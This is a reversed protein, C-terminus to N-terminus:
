RLSRDILIALEKQVREDASQRLTLYLSCQDVINESALIFPDYTWAEMRAEADDRSPCGVIDGTELADLVAKGHMAYTPIPEDALMTYHAMASLGAVAAHPRKRGWRIWQTRKAPSSLLPTAHNWLEKGRWRFRISLARGSRVVECLKANQLEDQAQSLAMASYRLRSAIQRLPVDTLDERILQYIIILQAIPTLKESETRAKPYRERLDIMLMPLFMQTGPVIFPVHQRLLRNRVYSTLKSIVLIVDGALFRKLSILDHAYESPSRDAQRTLELALYCKRGFLDARLLQYRGRLFVPLGSTQAQDVPELWPLDGAISTLYRKLATELTEAM